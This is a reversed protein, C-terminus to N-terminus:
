VLKSTKEWSLPQGGGYFCLMMNQVCRYQEGELVHAPTCAFECFTRGDPTQPELGLTVYAFYVGAAGLQEPPYMLSLHTKLSRPCTYQCAVVLVILRNVCPPLCPASASADFLTPAHFM